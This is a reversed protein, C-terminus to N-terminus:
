SKEIIKTVIQLISKKSSVAFKRLATQNDRNCDFSTILYLLILHKKKATFPGRFKAKSLQNNFLKQSYYPTKM